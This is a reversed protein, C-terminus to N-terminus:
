FQYERAPFQLCVRRKIIDQPMSHRDTRPGLESVYKAGEFSKPLDYHIIYSGIVILWVVPTAPLSVYRVDSKDIGM